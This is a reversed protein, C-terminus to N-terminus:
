CPNHLWGFRATGMELTPEPKAGTLSPIRSLCTRIAHYEVTVNFKKGASALLAPCDNVDDCDGSRFGRCLRSGLSFFRLWQGVSVRMVGPVLSPALGRTPLPIPAAHNLTLLGASLANHFEPLVSSQPSGRRM